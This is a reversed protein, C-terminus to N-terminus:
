GGRVLKRWENYDAEASNLINFAAMVFTSQDNAGGEDPLRAMGMEGRCM